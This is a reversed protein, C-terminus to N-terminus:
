PSEDENQVMNSIHKSYNQCNDVNWLAVCENGLERVYVDFCKGNILLVIWRQIIQLFCTNILIKASNFDM